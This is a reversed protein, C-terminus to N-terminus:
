SRNATRPRWPDSVVRAATTGLGSTEHRGDGGRGLGTRQRAMTRRSWRDLSHAQRKRLELDEFENTLAAHAGDFMEQGISVEGRGALFAAPIDDVFGQSWSRVRGSPRLDRVRRNQRGVLDETWEPASEADSRAIASRSNRINRKRRTTRSLCANAASGPPAESRQGVGTFQRSVNAAVVLDLGFEAGPQGKRGRRGSSHRHSQGTVM